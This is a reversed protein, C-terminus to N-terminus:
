PTPPDALAEPGSQHSAIDFEALQPEKEHEGVLQVEAPHRPHAPERTGPETRLVQM